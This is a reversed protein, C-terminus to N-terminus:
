YKRIGGRGDIVFTDVRSKLSLMNGVTHELLLSAVAIPNERKGGNHIGGLKMTATFDFGWMVNVVDPIIQAGTIYAGKGDYKGGYSWMVSYRFEVVEMKYKNYYSIKFNKKKPMKWDETELIDVPQGAIKPVISIPSYKTAVTPKGKNVLNYVEEGLAVLDRAITIVRGTQEIPDPTIVQDPTYAEQSVSKYVDQNFVDKTIEKVEVRDITYFDKDQQTLAQASISSFVLIALLAKPILM